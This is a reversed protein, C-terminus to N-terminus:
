KSIRIIKEKFMQYVEPYQDQFWWLPSDDHVREFHYTYTTETTKARGYVGAGWSYNFSSTSDTVIRISGLNILKGKPVNFRLIEDYPDSRGRLGVYM